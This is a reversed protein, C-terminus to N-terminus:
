QVPSRRELWLAAAALPLLWLASLALGAPVGWRYAVYGILPGGVIQGIQDVQGKMSIVTARVTSDDISRNFLGDMVPERAQRFAWVPWFAALALGFGVARAFLLLVAALALNLGAVLWLGSAPGLRRQLAEIAHLVAWSTLLAGGRILLFIYRVDWDGLAPLGTGELFRVPWLRDFGESFLGGLLVLGILGILMPSRRIVRWGHVVPTTWMALGRAEPFSPTFHHEPMVRWLLLGLLVLLGGGVFYPLGPMLIYLGLGIPLAAIQMLTSVKASRTLIRDINEGSLEDSLWAVDAGSLFTAGLGWIVQAAAVTVFLPLAGELILGAGMVALGIVLSRKRSYRDAVIGTPVEFLFCSAELLTGLVVLQFANCGVAEIHYLASATVMLFFGFMFGGRFLLYAGTPSWSHTKRLM